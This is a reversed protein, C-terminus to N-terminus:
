WWHCHQFRRGGASIEFKSTETSDNGLVPCVSLSQLLSRCAVDETLEEVSVGSFQRLNSQSLMLKDFPTYRSPSLIIKQVAKTMLDEGRHAGSTVKKIESGTVRKM